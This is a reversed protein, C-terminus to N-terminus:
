FHDNLDSIRPREIKEPPPLSNERELISIKLTLKLSLKRTGTAMDQDARHCYYYYTKKNRIVYANDSTHERNCLSYQSEAIHNLLFVNPLTPLSYLVEFDEIKYEELLKETYEVESRITGADIKNKEPAKRDEISTK